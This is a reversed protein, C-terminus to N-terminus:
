HLTFNFRWSFISHIPRLDSFTLRLFRFLMVRNWLQNWPFWNLLRSYFKLFCIRGYSGSKESIIILSYGLRIAM